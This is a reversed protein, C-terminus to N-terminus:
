NYIISLIVWVLIGFFFFFFFSTESLAELYAKKYSLLKVNGAM